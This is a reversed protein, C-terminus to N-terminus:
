IIIRNKTLDSVETYVSNYDSNDKTTSVTEKRKVPARSDTNKCSLFLISFLPHLFCKENKKKKFAAIARVCALTLKELKPTDNYRQTRDGYVTM